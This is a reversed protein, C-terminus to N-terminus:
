GGIKLRSRIKVLTSNLIQSIRSESLGLIQGIDSLILEEYYYLALVLREKEPLSIIINKLEIKLSETTLIEEPSKQSRDPITDINNPSGNNKGDNNNLSMSYNLHSNQIVSYYEEEAINLHECIEKLSPERKLKVILENETHEIKKILSLQTRSLYGNQRVADVIEGYIRKYAFSKFQSGYDPQYRNLADLLGVIGFQYFDNKDLTDSSPINLRNVIYKVLPIYAKVVQERTTDNPSNMYQRVLNEGNM